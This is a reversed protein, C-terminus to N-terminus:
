SIQRNADKKVLEKCGKRNRVDKGTKDRQSFRFEILHYLCLSDMRRENCVWPKEVRYYMNCVKKCVDDDIIVTECKAQKTSVCDFDSQTM